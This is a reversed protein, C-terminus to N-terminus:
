PTKVFNNIPSQLTETLSGTASCITATYGSKKPKQCRTKKKNNNEGGVGM